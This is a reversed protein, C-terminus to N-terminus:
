TLRAKFLRLSFYNTGLKNSTIINPLNQESAIYLLLLILEKQLFFKKFVQTGKFVKLIVRSRLNYKSRSAKINFLLPSVKM